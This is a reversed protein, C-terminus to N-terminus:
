VWRYRANIRNETVSDYHKNRKITLSTEKNQLFSSFENFVKVELRNEKRDRISEVLWSLSTIIQRRFNVPVPVQYNKSFVRKVVFIFIPRALLLTKDFLAVPNKKFKTKLSVISNYVIKEVVSKKGKLMLKNTLKKLWVSNYILDTQWKIKKIREIKIKKSTKM